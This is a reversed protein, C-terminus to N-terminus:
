LVPLPDRSGDTEVAAWSSNSDPVHAWAPSRGHASPLGSPDDCEHVPYKVQQDIERDENYRLWKGLGPKDGSM